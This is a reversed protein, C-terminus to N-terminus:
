KMEKKLFYGKYLPAVYMHLESGLPMLDPLHYDTNGVTLTSNNIVGNRISLSPFNRDVDDLIFWDGEQHFKGQSTLSPLGAGYSQYKTSTALIGDAAPNVELYEWVMTKMISHRYKWTIPMGPEARQIFLFGDRTQGFIYPRTLMFGAALALVLVAIGIWIKRSAGAMVVLVSEGLGDERRGTM